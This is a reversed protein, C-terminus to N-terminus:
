AHNMCGHQHICALMSTEGGQVQGGRETGSQNGDYGPQLAEYVRQLRTRPGSIPLTQLVSPFIIILSPRAEAATHMMSLCCDESCNSAQMVRYVWIGQDVRPQRSDPAAIM